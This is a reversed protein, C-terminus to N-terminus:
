LKSKGGLVVGLLWDKLIANTEDPTHWLAWHGADVEARTLNPIAKEMGRSMERTLIADKTALIYLTPQKVAKKREPELGLEDEFNIKRTRYWNCPGNIGNKLFEKVYYELEEENLLPSMGVEEGEDELISLDIGKEGSMFRKGSGVKGGYMGLLFKRMRREDGERVAKEVVCDESGFQLQYGFQPVSGSEVLERTSVYREHVPAYATAVSFVHSILEPQWQAIRYVAMGGWDHGGIVATRIKLSKAIGAVAEAHTKFSFASLDSTTGTNGYGMCDLAISRFGLSSFLPIQYRWAFSIDPFGHILFITGKQPGQPPTDLYHWKRGNVTAYQSQVKKGIDSPRIKPAKINGPPAM